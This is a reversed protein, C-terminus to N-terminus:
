SGGLRRAAAPADSATAIPAIAVELALRRWKSVRALAVSLSPGPEPNSSIAAPQVVRAQAGRGGSTPLLVYGGEDAGGLLVFYAVRSLALPSGDETLRQRGGGRLVATISGGSGYTPFRVNASVAPGSKRAVAWATVIRDRRFTNTTSIQVGKGKVVGNVRLNSFTGAYPRKPYKEGGRVTGRPSRELTLPPSADVTAPVQSALVTGGQANGILVGFGGGSRGGVCALVRQDADFLRALEIGGYPFAGNSTAMIATNYASTTVALRGITPDYAYMPPPETARATGLGYIVARTAHFQFRACFDGPDLGFTSKIGFLPSVPIQEDAGRQLALRVYTALARDFFYKAWAGEDESRLENVVAIAFLGQMAFAWYRGLHWRKLYMGTDWNLYGSHTWYAPLARSVFNRLTQLEEGELPAMGAERAQAYRLIVDLVINAYEASEVNEPEDLKGLPDRHFSYSPSLNPISWPSVTRRAGQLWRRLQDKYDNVLLDNDGTAEATYAYLESGWNIQNLRINPYRFFVGSATARIRDAIAATDTASLGLAARARWAFILGEGVKPDISIHQQSQDTSLSSVWGPTHDQNSVRPNTDGTSQGPPATRYPPEGLLARVITIARADQRTPGTHGLLAAISHSILAGANMRSDGAYIGASPRWFTNLGAQAWDAFAWYDDNTLPPNGLQPPQTRPAQAPRAAPAASAASAAAPALAPAAMLGAAARASGGLLERRTPPTRRQGEM